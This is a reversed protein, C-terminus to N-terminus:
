RLKTNGGEIISVRKELGKLRKDLEVVFVDNKGACRDEENFLRTVEIKRM